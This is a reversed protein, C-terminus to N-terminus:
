KKEILGRGSLRSLSEKLESETLGLDHAAASISIEGQHDELYKMVARDSPQLDLDVPPGVLPEPQTVEKPGRPKRLLFVVVGLLVLTFTSLSGLIMLTTDLSAPPTITPHSTSTETDTMITTSTTTASSTPNSTNTTTSLQTTTTEHSTSISESSTSATTIPIQPQYIFTYNGAASIAWMNNETYYLTGDPAQVYKDVFITHATNVKFTFTKVASAKMTGADQGDVKLAVGLDPPLGSLSIAVSYTPESVDFYAVATQFGSCLDNVQFTASWSGLQSAPLTKVIEYSQSSFRFSFMSSFGTPPSVTLLGEAPRNVLMHISVQEGLQYAPKDTFVKVQLSPGATAVALSASAAGTDGATSATVTLSYSAPCYLPSSAADITLTSSAEGTASTTVPNPSFSFGAGVPLGSLSLTYAANPVAHAISITYSAFSGQSVTLSTPDVTVYAPSLPVLGGVNLIFLILVM